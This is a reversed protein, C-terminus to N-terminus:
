AAPTASRMRLRIFDPATLTVADQSYGVVGGAGPIARGNTGITFPQDKTYTGAAVLVAFERGEEVYHGVASHDVPIAEGIRLGEHNAPEVCYIRGVVGATAQVFREQGSVVSIVAFTGPLLAATAVRRTETKFTSEGDINVRHYRPM